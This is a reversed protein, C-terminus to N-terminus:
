LVEKCVQEWRKLEKLDSPTMSWKGDVGMNYCLSFHKEIIDAGRALAIKACDLGITHDSFGDYESHYEGRGDSSGLVGGTDEFM